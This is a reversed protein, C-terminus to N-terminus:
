TEPKHSALGRLYRRTWDPIRTPKTGGELPVASAEVVRWAKWRFKDNLVFVLVPGIRKGVIAEIEALRPSRGTGNGLVMVQHSHGLAASAVLSLRGRTFDEHKQVTAPDCGTEELVQRAITQLGRALTYSTFALYRQVNPETQFAALAPHNLLKEDVIRMLKGMNKEEGKVTTCGEIRRSTPVTPGAIDILKPSKYNTQSLWGLDRIKAIVYADFAFAKYIHPYQVPVANRMTPLWEWVLICLVDQNPRIDRILTSFNASKEESATQVAKVELRVGPRHQPDRSVLDPYQNAVVFGMRYTNGPLGVLEDDIYRALTYELLVGIRTRADTLNRENTPLRESPLKAILESNVGSNMREVIRPLLDDNLAELVAPFRTHYVQFLTAVADAM